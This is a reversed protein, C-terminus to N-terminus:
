KNEKYFSNVTDFFATINDWNAAPPIDCGSSIIFNKHKGCTNLLNLVANKMSDPTGNRFESVPDINGFVPVDAPMLELIKQMSVANGFHYGSAGITLISDVLPITNGCNHYIFVFDDDKVADAIRKCYPSAFESILDPSLLGAAPEAIVVGDAGIQKYAKIYNIIFETTKELVTHVFEPETLCNIMIETMDMLRGALSFPGIVGAFVPRDEILAKAKRIADIYHGTRGAGVEPVKLTLADDPTELLKGVVSPIEHENVKIKAGFAEAELSLDMMSVSAASDCKDAILKMGLAQKESKSILEAVNIGLLQVSPFSLIPMAKKTESKLLENLWSNM